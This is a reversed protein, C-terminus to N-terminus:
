LPMGTIGTVSIYDSRLGDIVMNVVLRPNTRQIKRDQGYLSSFLFLSVFLFVLSSPVSPRSTGNMKKENLRM